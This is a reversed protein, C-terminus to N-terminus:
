LEPKLIVTKQFLQFANDCKASSVTKKLLATNNSTGKSIWPIKFPGLGQFEYNQAPVVSKKGGYKTALHAANM